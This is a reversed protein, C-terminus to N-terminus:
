HLIRLLLVAAGAAAAAPWVGTGAHAASRADSSVQRIFICHANGPGVAVRQQEQMCCLHTFNTHKQKAYRHLQETRHFMRCDPRDFHDAVTVLDLGLTDRCLQNYVLRHM